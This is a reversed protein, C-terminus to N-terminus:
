ESYMKEYATLEMLEISLELRMKKIANQFQKEIRKGVKVGSEYSCAPLLAIFQTVSYRTLVDGIRLSSRLLEELQSMGKELVHAQRLIKAEYANKTKIGPNKYQWKLFEDCDNSYSKRIIWNMEITKKYEKIKQKLM